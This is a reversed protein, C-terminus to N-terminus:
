DRDFLKRLKSDITNQLLNGAADKLFRQFEKQLTQKDLRPSSLTGRLPVSIRRNALSQKLKDSGLRDLWKPPIPFEAIMSLQGDLRVAGYTRITLEPFVIEMGQHRVWGDQMAFAIQSNARLGVKAPKRLLLTSLEQIMPNGSIEASHITLAGRITSKPFSSLPVRCDQIGVSIQGKGQTVGALAPVVYKIASNCMEPTIQVRDLVTGKALEFELPGPELRLRPQMQIKGQNLACQVTGLNVWGNTLKAQVESAGGVCGFARLQDWHLTVNAKWTSLGDALSGEFSFPKTSAGTVRISERITPALAAQIKTLDYSVQGNLLLRCKDSLQKLHGQATLNTLRSNAQMQHIQIADGKGDFSMEGKLIILAEQWDPKSREGILLDRVKADVKAFTQKGTPRLTLQGEVKGRMFETNGSSEIALWNYIRAMDGQVNVTGQVPIMSPSSLLLELKQADATMTPCTLKAQNLSLTEAQSDFVVEATLEATPERLVVGGLDLHLKEANLKANKLIVKPLNLTLDGALQADGKLALADLGVVFPSLRSKWQELDGSVRLQADGSKMSMLNDIPKSVLVLIRDSGFVLDFRAKELQVIGTEQLQGEGTLIITSDKEKLQQKPSFGFQLRDLATFTEIKFGRKSKRNLTVKTFGTGALQLTGLDVFRRLEQELKNLNYNASVTMQETSGSGTMTLFSSECKLQDVVPLGEAEQHAAFDLAIPDKWTFVKGDRQGRLEATHLKGNWAIGKSHTKSQVDLTVRGELIETGEQIHLIGPLMQALRALDVDVGVRYGPRQLSDLLHKSTDFSGNVTAKGLDCTLEGREVHVISDDLRVRCPLELKRLRLRDNGLWSGALYLQETELKGELVGKSKEWNGTFQCHLDGSVRLSPDFRQGIAQALSLPVGQANVEVKGTDTGIVLKAALSGDSSRAGESVNAKLDVTLPENLKKSTQVVCALNSLSWDRSTAEEQIHISGETLELKVAVSEEGSSTSPKLFEAFVEELNSSKPKCIIEVKPKQCRFTGLDSSNWLLNWLSKTGEIKAITIVKKGASDTITVNELVPASFWGFSASGIEVEGQLDSLAMSALRNRLFSHAIITPAFLILLLLLLLTIVFFRRLRRRKKPQSPETKTKM